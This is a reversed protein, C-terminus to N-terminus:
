GVSSSLFSRYTSHVLASCLSATNQSPSGTYLAPRRCFKKNRHLRFLGGCFAQPRLFTIDYKRLSPMAETM